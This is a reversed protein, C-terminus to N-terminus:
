SEGPRRNTTPDIADMARRLTQPAIGRRVARGAEGRLRRLGKIMAPLRNLKMGAALKVGHAKAHWGQVQGLYSAATGTALQGDEVLSAVFRMM